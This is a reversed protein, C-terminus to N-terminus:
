FKFNLDAQLRYREAQSDTAPSINFPGTGTGSATTKIPAKDWLSLKFETNSWLERSGYLAWGERNTQGDFMDSDTYLAPVANAEIHQWALGVRFLTKPDGAEVGVGYATDNAGVRVGSVVAGDAALNQAWTGWLIVPWGDLGGWSVYGSSEIIRMDPDFASPLNGLAVSRGVFGTRTATTADNTLARWDYYSARAGVEVAEPLKLSGGTQFAWVKPDTHAANQLETFLGTTAYVKTNETPSYSTTIVAGEPTIDEDWLIKDMGNKWIFPNPIKGATVTTALGIGPDPLAFQAYLRDFFVNDYSFDSSEGVSVNTSRYDTTGTVLRVGVLAWPVIQKTFGIRARYRMRNNDNAGSVGLGSSGYWFQEDRLRLDGSFIFGELLGQGVSPTTKASQTAESKAQKALIEDGTAADILGKERLVAVIQDVASGDDARAGAVCLMFLATVGACVLARAASRRSGLM